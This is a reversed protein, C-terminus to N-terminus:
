QSEKWGSATKVNVTEAEKWVGNAKVWVQGEKWGNNTKVYVIGANKVTEPSSCVYISNTATNIDNYCYAGAGNKTYAIIALRVEDGPKYGFDGPSNVVFTATQSQNTGENKCSYTLGSVLSNASGTDYIGKNNSSNKGDSIVVGKFPDSSSSRKDLHILYGLVPSNPNTTAPTTWTFTWPEKLTLRSKKYSLIPTGPMAATTDYRKIDILTEKGISKSGTNDVLTTGTNLQATSYPFATQVFAHFYGTTSTGILDSVKFEHSFYTDGSLKKGANDNLRFWNTGNNAAWAVNGISNYYLTTEGSNNIGDSGTYGYCVIKNDGMNKVTLSPAGGPGYYAPVTVNGSLWKDDEPPPNGGDTKYYHFKVSVNVTHADDDSCSYKCDKLNGERGTHYTYVNPISYAPLNISKGGASIIM